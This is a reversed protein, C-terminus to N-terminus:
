GAAGYIVDLLGGSWGYQTLSQELYAGGGDQRHRKYYLLYYAALYEGGYGAALVQAVKLFLERVYEVIQHAPFYLLLKAATYPEEANAAGLQVTLNLLKQPVDSEGVCYTVSEGLGGRENAIGTGFAGM